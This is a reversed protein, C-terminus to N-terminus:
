YNRDTRCGRGRRSHRRVSEPAPGWAEEPAVTIARCVPDTIAFGVSYEVRRGRVSNQETIWELLDHSAGAGDSRILLDRRHAAPIQAIAQGLVDIHDSATDSGANGPRLSAAM